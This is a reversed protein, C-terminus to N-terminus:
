TNHKRLSGFRWASDELIPYTENQMAAAIPNSYLPIPFPSPAIAQQFANAFKIIYLQPLILLGLILNFSVYSNIKSPVTYSAELGSSSVSTTTAHGTSLYHPHAWHSKVAVTGSTVIFNQRFCSIQQAEGIPLYRRRRVALASVMPQLIM